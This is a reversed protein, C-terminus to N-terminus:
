AACDACATTDADVPLAAMAGEGAAVALLAALGAEASAAAAADLAWAGDVPKACAYELSHSRDHLVKIPGHRVYGAQAYFRHARSFRTDTHLVLHRAGAAIAHREARDMLAQAVGTGRAAPAVYVRAIEWADALMWPPGARRVGAMGLPTGDAAEAIWFMGGRAAFASALARLDPEEGDVDLVIGPYERWAADILAIIFSADEDRGPRLRLTM